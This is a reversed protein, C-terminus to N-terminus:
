GQVEAKRIAYDMKPVYHDLVQQSDVDPKVAIASYWGNRSATIGIRTVMEGLEDSQNVEQASWSDFIPPHLQNIAQIVKVTADSVHKM